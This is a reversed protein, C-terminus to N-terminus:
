PPRLQRKRREARQYSNEGGIERDLQARVDSQRRNPDYEEVHQHHEGIQGYRM